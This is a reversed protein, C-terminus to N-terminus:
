KPLQKGEVRTKLNSYNYYFLYILLVQLIQINDM